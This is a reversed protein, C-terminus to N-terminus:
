SGARFFMRRITQLAIILDLGLSRHKLYYFDYALRVKTEEVSQPSANGPEYQQNIQAWGTIGPLVLYRVNYYPLAEQLRQGLGLIDNRPGVLSIEGGWMLMVTCVGLVVASSIMARRKM